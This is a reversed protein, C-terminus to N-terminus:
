EYLGGAKELMSNCEYRRLLALLGEKNELNKYVRKISAKTFGTINPLIVQYNTRVRSEAEQTKNYMNETMSVPKETLMGYFSDIDVCKPDNLVPEIQRKQLRFVGKINDSDGFIAKSIPIKTPDMVHYKAYVDSIEVMRNLNPSFIRVNKRALLPWLDADGTFVIIDKSACLDCAYVIADDGEREPQEIHLGPLFSCLEKVGPIPDFLRDERNAKYEPFIKRREAKADKGDYAMIVCLSSGLDRLKAQLMNMASHVHGSPEGKSTKLEGNAHYGRWALNSLDIILATDAQAPSDFIM